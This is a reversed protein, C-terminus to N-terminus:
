FPLGGSEDDSSDDTLFPPIDDVSPMPPPEPMGVSTAAGVKELRWARVDTFWKGNFERSELNISAKIQDGLKFSDLDRVKDGWLSICVKRPYQEQTEVVFGQKVWVGNKGQGSEQPLKSILKGTLEM